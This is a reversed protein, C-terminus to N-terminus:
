PGRMADGDGCFYWYEISAQDASGTQARDATSPVRSDMAGWQKAPASIKGGIEASGATAIVEAATGLLDSTFERGSGHSPM